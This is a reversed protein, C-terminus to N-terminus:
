SHHLLRTYSVGSELTLTDTVGIDFASSQVFDAGLNSTQDNCSFCISVLMLKAVTVLDSVKLKIDM